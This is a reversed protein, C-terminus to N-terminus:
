PKTVSRIIGGESPGTYNEAPQGFMGMFTLFDRFGIDGSGDLDFKSEFKADESSMGYVRAFQVYDGFGIMGDGDFDPGASPSPPFRFGEPPANPDFTIGYVPIGYFLNFDEVGLLGSQDLDPADASRAWTLFDPFEVVGNGDFDPGVSYIDVPTNNKPVVQDGIVTGITFDPFFLNFDEPGISGNGDLDSAVPFDVWAIFDSFGIRGDGDYDPAKPFRFGEPPNNPDFTIGYVPIGYFLNFDEVGLLGSRDLDPADPAGAWTILDPFEVVGNGDFDPGTTYIDVPPDNAQVLDGVITGIPYDPFALNFDEPGMSGSGDLDSAEPLKSWVVVDGFGIRGDGDFDPVSDSLANQAQTSAVAFLSAVAFVVGALVNKSFRHWQVM